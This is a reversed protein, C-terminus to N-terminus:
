LVEGRDVAGQGAGRRSRVWWRRLEDSGWVIIPFAALPVLHIPDLAYTGFISQLPPVYIL